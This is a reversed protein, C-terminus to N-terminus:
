GYQSYYIRYLAQAVGRRITTRTPPLTWKEHEFELQENQLEAVERLKGLRVPRPRNGVFKLAGEIEKQCREQVLPDDGIPQPM